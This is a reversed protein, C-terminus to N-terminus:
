IRRHGSEIERPHSCDAELRARGSRVVLLLAPPSQEESTLLRRASLAAKSLWGKKMSVFLLLGSRECRSHQERVAPATQIGSTTCAPVRTAPLDAAQDDCGRAENGIVM